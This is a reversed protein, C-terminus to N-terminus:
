SNHFLEAKLLQEIAASPMPESLLFGQVQDCQQKKLYTIQSEKEVGEALVQFNLCRSMAIISEIFVEHSRSLSINKIFMSDIKLKDIHIKKLYNLSFEGSGFNDLSIKIGLDSLENIVAVTSSDSMLVKETLQFELQHAEVKNIGLIEKLFPIFNPHLLQQASSNIAISNTTINKQVWLNIQKCVDRLVWEGVMNMLNSEEAIPIFAGPSLVDRSPHKWRILAEISLLTKNDLSFLPQYVLFFENNTAAHEIESATIPKDDKRRNLM